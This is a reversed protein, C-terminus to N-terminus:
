KRYNLGYIPSVTRASEIFHFLGDCPNRIEFEGLAKLSNLVNSFLLVITWVASEDLVSAVTCVLYAPGM